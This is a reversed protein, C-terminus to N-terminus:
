LIKTIALFKKERESVLRKKIYASVREGWESLLFNLTGGWNPPLDMDMVSISLDMLRSEWGDGRPPRADGLDEEKEKRDGDM